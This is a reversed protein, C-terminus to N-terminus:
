ILVNSLCRWPRHRRRQWIHKALGRVEPLFFYRRPSVEIKEMLASLEGEFYGDSFRKIINDQGVIKELLADRLKVTREVLRDVSSTSNDSTETKKQCAAEPKERGGDDAVKLLGKMVDAHITRKVYRFADSASRRSMSLWIRFERIRQKELDTVPEGQNLMVDEESDPDEDITKVLEEYEKQDYSKGKLIDSAWGVRLMAAYISQLRVLDDDPTDQVRRAEELILSLLETQMVIRGIYLVPGALIIDPM